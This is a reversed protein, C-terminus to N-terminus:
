LSYMIQGMVSLSRNTSRKQKIVININPSFHLYFFFYGQKLDAHYYSFDKFDHLKTYKM